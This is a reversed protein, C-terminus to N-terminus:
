DPAFDMVEWRRTTGGIHLDQRPYADVAGRIGELTRLLSAGDVGFDNVAASAARVAHRLAIALPLGLGGLRLFVGALVEGAGTTDIPTMATAPVVCRVGGYMLEAGCAGRKVVSPVPPSAAGPYLVDLEFENLFVLDARSCVERCQYPLRAAFQEFMDVSVTRNGPLSRTYKLWALQQWPPATALHIHSASLYENPFSQPRVHEAVGLESRFTREGDRTQEIFFRASKGAVTTVGRRDVGIRRLAAEDFDVGVSAVIGVQKPDCVAAGRACGYVSGGLSIAAGHPTCDEALGLHGVIVLAIAQPSSGDGIPM